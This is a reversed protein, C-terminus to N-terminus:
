YEDEDEDTAAPPLRCRASAADVRAWTAGIVILIGYQFFSM